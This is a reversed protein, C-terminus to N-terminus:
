AEKVGETIIAGIAKLRKAVTDKQYEPLGSSMFIDYLLEVESELILKMKDRESKDYALAELRKEVEDLM